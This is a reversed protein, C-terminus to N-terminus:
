KVPIQELVALLHNYFRQVTPILLKEDPSHPFRMTPGFSVMELAPNVAGILGCELGAHIVKVEPERGFLTNYTSKMLSLISSNMDPNWGPYAGYREVKFDALEFLSVLDVCLAEKQSDALGRVLICLYIEGNRANVIALNSSTGVVGPLSPSMTEVGNKCALVVRILDNQIDEPMVVAPMETEEVMLSVGADTESYESQYLAEFQAAFDRFDDSEEASIVVVAFAERPIANRLTGGEVWALRADFQEVAQQLFRFMLKCANGRGLNIDLGSHGGKLGKLSVKLAMEQDPKYLEEQYLLSASVNEGGACGVFLEGEDESDTNILIDAQLFDPTLGFAGDMGTEEEVTFLADIPGHMLTADALVALITALGVGNDAGLTTNDATLWDGDIILKLPDKTFDHEIGSNKQPVMDLHGQLIVRKRDEMGKSAPKSILLNGTADKKWTLNHREAFAVMYATIPEKTGSPHPIQTIDAFYNFVAEPQLKRVQSIM